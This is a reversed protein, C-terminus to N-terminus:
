DKLVAKLKRYSVVDQRSILTDWSARARPVFTLTRNRLRLPALCHQRWKKAELMLPGHIRCSAFPRISVTGDRAIRIVVATAFHSLAVLDYRSRRFQQALPALFYGKEGLWMRLQTLTQKQEPSIRYPRRAM